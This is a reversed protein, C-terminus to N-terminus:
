EVRYVNISGGITTVYRAKARELLTPYDIPFVDPAQSLRLFHRSIAVWGRPLAPPIDYLVIARPGDRSFGRRIASEM